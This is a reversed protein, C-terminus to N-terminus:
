DPGTTTTTEPLTVLSPVNFSCDSPSRVREPVTSTGDPLPRKIEAGETATPSPLERPVEPFRVIVVASRLSPAPLEM